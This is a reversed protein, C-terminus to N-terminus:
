VGQPSIVITRGLRNAERQLASLAIRGFEGADLKLVLDGSAPAPETAQRARFADTMARYVAQSVEDASDGGLSSAVAPNFERPVVAEGRHLYALMDQPVYNTGTRLLPIEPINFGWTKGALGALGPVHKLWAPAQIKLKNLGRIMWNVAKIIANIVGKIVGLIGDWVKGATTKIGEWTTSLFGAVKDWTEITWAKISDWNTVILTVLGIVAAIVLPIPGLAVLWAAAVEAASALATVGMWVWKAGLIVFQAVQVAVATVAEAKQMAWALVVKGAEALAVVGLWAWKAGALVFQGIQVGVSAVAEWGQMAWALVVKGANVLAEIGLLAWKGLQMAFQAVITAGHTVAAVSQMAWSALVKGGAITAEVGTKILAPLLFLAIATGIGEIIPGITPWNDKVWQIANNVPVLAQGVKQWASLAKEAVGSLADGLQSIGEAMGVAPLAVEPVAVEPATISAALDAASMQEQIQHVEDFSMIGGAAAEKAAELGKALNDQSKAAKDATEAVNGVQSAVQASTTASQLAQSAAGKLSDALGIVAQAAGRLGPVVWSIATMIWGVAHVVLSAATIAVASIGGWVRQATVRVKDWNSALYLSVAILAAIALMVLKVKGGVLYTLAEGLTAAGGRWMTFAFTANAVFGTLTGVVGIVGAITRNLLGGLLMMPGIAALVLLLNGTATRVPAPLSEFADALRQVGRGLAEGKEIVLDMIPALANGFTIAVNQARNRLMILQSARTKYRKNAEEVLAVNEQWAKTGMDISRRLLDGAGAVSLFGRTLRQDTLGLNRLISFAQPGSKGLGEVFRTFAEGADDRWAQVFEAASMGATAAFVPLKANGTAVAETISQLVKSVATGGAEAEVGVSAFAGGIALVQAETLGAIRAAGAINLGFALIKPETTALRNGLHVITSGYRDFIKQGSGMINALQALEQAADEAAMPTATGLMAMTRTFGIINDTQIGLQGGTEALKALEQHTKPIQTTMHRLSKDIEAFQEATGDVTKLVGAFDDEWKIAARSVATLGVVLPATVGLSWRRGIDEMRRASQMFEKETSKVARAARGMTREFDTASATLVIALSGVTAM